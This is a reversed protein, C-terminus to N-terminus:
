QQQQVQDNDFDSSSTKTDANSWKLGVEKAYSKQYTHGGRANSREMRKTEETDVGDSDTLRMMKREERCLANVGDNM